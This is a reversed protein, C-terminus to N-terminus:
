KETFSLIAEELYELLKFRDFESRVYERGNEGMQRAKDPNDKLWRIKEAFEDPSEPTVAFGANGNIVLDATDGRGAYIMPIGSGLYDFPKNGLVYEWLPDDPFLHVGVNAASLITPIMKRPKSDIFQVNDLKKDRCYQQYSAKKEGDGIIAYFIEPDDRTTEATKLLTMIDYSQTLGGAYVAVFRDGWGFEERPNISTDPDQFVQPEYGNKVVTIKDPSHGKEIIAKKIGDSVTIIHDSRKYITNEVFKAAKIFFKSRSYKNAELADAMLDRVEFFFPVRRLKSILLGAGPLVAPPYAGIVVDPRGAKFMLLSAGAAFLCEFLFRRPMSSRFNEMSWPRLVRVGEDMIDSYLKGKVEPYLKQARLEVGPAIATVDYGKRSLFLGIQTSRLGSPQNISNYHPFLLLVKTRKEM